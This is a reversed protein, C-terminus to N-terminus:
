PKAAPENPKTPPDLLLPPSSRAGSPTSTTVRPPPAPVGARGARNAWTGFGYLAAGVLGFPILFVWGIFGAGEHTGYYVLAGVMGALWAGMAALYGTIQIKRKRIAAELKKLFFEAEQPTLKQIAALLEDQTRANFAKTVLPDEVSKPM